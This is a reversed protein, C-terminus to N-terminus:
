WALSFPQGRRPTRRVGIRRDRSSSIIARRKIGPEAIRRSVRRRGHWAIPEPPDQGGERSDGRAVSM